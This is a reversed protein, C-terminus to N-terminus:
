AGPRGGAGYFTPKPGRIMPRGPQNFIDLGLGSGGGGQNRNLAGLAAAGAVGTRSIRGGLKVGAAGAKLGAKGVVKAAQGTKAIIRAGAPGKKALNIGAKEAAERIADDTIKVGMSKELAKRFAEGQDIGRYTSGYSKSLIQSLQDMTKPSSSVKQGIKSFLSEMGRAIKLPVRIPFTLTKYILRAGIGMGPVTALFSMILLINNWKSEPDQQWKELALKVYPWSMVGTPDFISIIQYITNGEALKLVEEPIGNQWTYYGAAGIAIAPIWFAENLQKNNEKIIEDVLSDFDM